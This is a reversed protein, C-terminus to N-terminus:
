VNSAKRSKIIKEVEVKYYRQDSESIEGDRVSQHVTAHILRFDNKDILLLVDIAAAILEKSRKISM